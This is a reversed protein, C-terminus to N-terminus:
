NGFRQKFITFAVLFVIGISFFLLSFFVRSARESIKGQFHTGIIAGIMAGPVGWVILNWPIASLGGRM